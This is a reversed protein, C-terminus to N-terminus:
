TPVEALIEAVVDRLDQLSNSGSFLEGAQLVTLGLEQTAVYEILRGDEVFTATDDDMDWLIKHGALVVAHGAFCYATNCGTKEAWSDQLWEDPHTEIYHLTKQLLEVNAPM